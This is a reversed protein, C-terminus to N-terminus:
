TNFKFCAQVEHTAFAKVLIEPGVGAPDGLPVAVIPKLNQKETM